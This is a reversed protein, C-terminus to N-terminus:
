ARTLNHYYMCIALKSLSTIWPEEVRGLFSVARSGFYLYLGMVLISPLTELAAHKYGIHKAVCPPEYYVTMPVVIHM